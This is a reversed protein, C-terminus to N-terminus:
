KKEKGKGERINKIAEMLRTGLIMSNHIRSPNPDVPWPSGGGFALQPGGPAFSGAGPLTGVGMPTPIAARAKLFKLIDEYKTEKALGGPQPLGDGLGGGQGLGGEAGEVGLGLLKMLLEIQQAQEDQAM